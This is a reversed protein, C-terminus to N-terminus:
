LLKPALQAITMELWKNPWIKVPSGARQITFRVAAKYIRPATATGIGGPPLMEKHPKTEPIDKYTDDPPTLAAVHYRMVLKLDKESIPM